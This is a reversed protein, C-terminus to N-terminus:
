DYENEEDIRTPSKTERDWHTFYTPPMKHTDKFYLIMAMCGACIKLDDGWTASLSLKFYNDGPRISKGHKEKGHSFDNRCGRICDHKKRASTERWYWRGYARRIGERIAWLQEIEQPNSYAFANWLCEEFPILTRPKRM